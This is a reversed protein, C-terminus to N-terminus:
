DNVLYTAINSYFSCRKASFARVKDTTSTESLKKAWIQIMFGSWKVAWSRLQENAKLEEKNNALLQKAADEYAEKCIRKFLADLSECKWHSDYIKRGMVKGNYVSTIIAVGDGEFTAVMSFPYCFNTIVIDGNDAVDITINRNKFVDKVESFDRIAEWNAFVTSSVARSIFKEHKM